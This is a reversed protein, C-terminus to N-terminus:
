YFLCCVSIRIHSFSSFTLPGFFLFLLLLSRFGCAHCHIRTKSLQTFRLFRPPGQLLRPRDQRGADLMCDLVAPVRPTNPASRLQDSDVCRGLRCLHGVGFGDSQKRATLDELIGSALFNKDMPRLNEARIYHLNLPRRHIPFAMSNWEIRRSPCPRM